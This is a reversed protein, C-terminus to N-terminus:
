SASQKLRIMELPASTLLQLIGLWRTLHIFPPSFYSLIYWVGTYASLRTLYLRLPLHWKLCCTSLAAQATSWVRPPDQDTCITGLIIKVHLYPNVKYHVNRYGITSTSKANFHLTLTNTKLCWDQTQSYVRIHLNEEMLRYRLEYLAFPIDTETFM